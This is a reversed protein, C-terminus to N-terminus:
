PFSPFGEKKGQAGLINWISVLCTRCASADPRVNGWAPPVQPFAAPSSWLLHTLPRLGSSPVGGEWARGELGACSSLGRGNGTDEKQRLSGAPLPGSGMRAQIRGLGVGNTCLKQSVSCRPCIGKESPFAPTFLSWAGLQSPCAFSPSPSLLSLPFQELLHM